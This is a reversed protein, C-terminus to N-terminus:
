PLARELLATLKQFAREAQAPNYAGAHDPVTWGHLAGDYTESEYTGGWATLAREFKEIAEPPMTRDNVAHGFYLQAKVRPLLLHPSTADDVCLRGGHFSAAAGIRDPRAAATRLAIAGGFCYGVIGIPGPGVNEHAGLADVYAAADRAIADPTLPAGLAVFRQRIREDTIDIPFSFFPPEGSRYFVNPMLVTYGQEAVRRAMARHSPRIGGVDTVHIVGPLKRRDEPAYVVSRAIGDPTRIEIELERM